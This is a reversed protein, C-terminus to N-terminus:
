KEFHGGKAELMAEVRPRFASCTNVLYEEPMLEWQEEVAAKLSAVNPHPRSCAKKEVYGWVGYDLPSLDPSSPPWMSWPWFAALNEECWKQVIKSKHSPASDQQWVYNGDPYNEDLWPKVVTKLVDLYVETNVKLGKEFWFPKMKKGDSAVVGLMMASAPHKQSNIPPVEDVCFALYRDNQRNRAQDVTWMKKDSFIRVTSRDHKMWTLLKKGKAVRTLKTTDSLLQRRRRVYSILGLQKVAKRITRPTVNKEKALQRMSITPDADIRDKLDDMFEDTRKRNHGGSGPKRKLHNGDNKLQRVKAVMTRSCGVIRCIDNTGMHADILASVRVRKAEMAEM